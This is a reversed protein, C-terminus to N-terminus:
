IVRFERRARTLRNALHELGCAHAAIPTPHGHICTWVPEVDNGEELIQATYTPRHAQARDSGAARIALVRVRAVAWPSCIRRGM